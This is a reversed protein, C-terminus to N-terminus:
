IFLYIFSIIILARQSHLKDGDSHPDLLILQPTYIAKWKEM